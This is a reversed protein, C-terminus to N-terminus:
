GGYGCYTILLQGKETMMNEKNNLEYTIVDAVELM